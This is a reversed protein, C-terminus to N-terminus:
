LLPNIDMKNSTPTLSVHPPGWLYNAADVAEAKSIIRQHVACQKNLSHSTHWPMVLPVPRQDIMPHSCQNVQDCTVLRWRTWQNCASQQSAQPMTSQHFIQNPDMCCVALWPSLYKWWSNETLRVSTLSYFESIKTNKANKQPMKTTWRSLSSLSIQFYIAINKPLQLSWLKQRLTKLIKTNKTLTWSNLLRSVNCDRVTTSAYM